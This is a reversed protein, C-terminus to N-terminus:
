GGWHVKLVIFLYVMYRNIHQIYVQVEYMFHLFKKCGWSGIKAEEPITNGGMITCTEYGLSVTAEELLHESYLPDRTRKMDQWPLSWYKQVKPNGIRPFLIQSCIIKGKRPMAFSDHSFILAGICPKSINAELKKERELTRLINKASFTVNLHDHFTAILINLFM